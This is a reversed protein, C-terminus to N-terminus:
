EVRWVYSLTVFDMDFDLDVSGFIGGFDITVERTPYRAYELEIAGQKGVKIGAGVGVALGYINKEGRLDPINIGFDQAVRTYGVRGTAYIDGSTKAALFFGISEVSADGGDGFYDDDKSVSFTYEFEGSVVDNIRKGFIFGLNRIDSGSEPLDDSITVEGYKTTFYVEGFFQGVTNYGYDRAAHSVAPMLLTLSLLGLALNKTM